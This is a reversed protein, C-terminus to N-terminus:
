QSSPNGPSIPGMQNQTKVSFKHWNKLENKTGFITRPCRKAQFYPETELFWLPFRPPKECVTKKRNLFKPPVVPKRKLSQTNGPNKLIPPRNKPPVVIRLKDIEIRDIKVGRKPNGELGHSDEPTAGKEAKLGTHGEGPSKFPGRRKYLM